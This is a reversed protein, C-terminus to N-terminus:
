KCAAKPLFAYVKFLKGYGDYYHVALSSGRGTTFNLTAGPAIESSWKASSWGKAGNTNNTAWKFARPRDGRVNKVFYRSTTKTSCVPGIELRSSLKGTINGTIGSEDQDMQEDATRYTWTWKEIGSSNAKPGFFQKAWDGTEIKKGDSDDFASPLKRLKDDNKLNGKVTYTGGGMFTGSLERSVKAAGDKDGPTEEGKVTKFSGSDAIVVSYQNGQLHHITAVRKFSDRAWGNDDKRNTVQQSVVKDGNPATVLDAAYANPAAFALSGGLVATVALASFSKTM